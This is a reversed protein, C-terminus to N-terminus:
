VDVANGLTWPQERELVLTMDWQNHMRKRIDPAGILRVDTFKKRAGPVGPNNQIYDFVTAQWGIDKFWELAEKMLAESICEFVKTMRYKEPGHTYVRRKGGAAEHLIQNIDIELPQDIAPAPLELEDAIPHDFTVHIM